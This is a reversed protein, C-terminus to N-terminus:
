NQLDSNKVINTKCRHHIKKNNHISWANQTTKEKKWIYIMSFLVIVFAIATAIMEFNSPRKEM